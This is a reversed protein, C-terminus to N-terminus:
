SAVAKAKARQENLYIILKLTEAPDMRGIPGNSYASIIVKGSKSLLFESPQIIQRQEEWWSGMADGDKKTMGFAVPFGLDAAIEATKEEDDVTGALLSVGQEAFAERRAEYGAM